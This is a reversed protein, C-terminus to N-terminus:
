APGTQTKGAPPVPEVTLDYPSAKSQMNKLESTVTALNQKLQRITQRHRIWEFLLFLSVTLAGIFGTFLLLLWLPIPLSQFTYFYVNFQLKVEYELTALNQKIFVIAVIFLLTVFIIKFHRM